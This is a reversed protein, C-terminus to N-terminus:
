LSLQHALFHIRGTNHTVSVKIQPLTEVQPHTVGGARYEKPSLQSAINGERAGGDLRSPDSQLGTKELVRSWSDSLGAMKMRKHSFIFTNEFSTTM